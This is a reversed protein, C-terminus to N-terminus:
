GNWQKGELKPRQNPLAKTASIQIYLLQNNGQDAVNIWVSKGHQIALMIDNFTIEVTGIHDNNKIDMDFLYIRFRTDKFIPWGSYGTDFHPMYSDKSITKKDALILRTGAINALNKLTPGIQQIYGIADPAVTGKKSSDSISQIVAATLLGSGPLILDGLAQAAGGSFIFHADWNSGNMKTPAIIASLVTFNVFQPEVIKEEDSDGYISLNFSYFITLFIFKKIM